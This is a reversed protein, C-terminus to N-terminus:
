QPRSPHSAAACVLNEARDKFPQVNEGGGGCVCGWDKESGRRQLENRKFM